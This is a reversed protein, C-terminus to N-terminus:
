NEDVSRLWEARRQQVRRLQRNAATMCEECCADYAAEPSVPLCYTGSIHVLIRAYNDLQNNLYLVIFTSEDVILSYDPEHKLTVTYKRTM